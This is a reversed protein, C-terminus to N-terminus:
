KSPPCWYLCESDGEDRCGHVVFCLRPKVVLVVCEARADIAISVCESESNVPAQYQPHSLIVQMESPTLLPKKAHGWGAEWM